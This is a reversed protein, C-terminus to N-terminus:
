FCDQKLSIGPSAIIMEANEFTEPDHFGTETFIGEAELERETESKSDDIDTIVVNRGKSKLFRAAAIGSKGMGAILTYSADFKSSKNFNKLATKNKM